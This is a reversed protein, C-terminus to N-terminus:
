LKKDLSHLEKANTQDKTAQAEMAAVCEANTTDNSCTALEAKRETDHQLYYAQDHKPSTCGAVIPLAAALAARVLLVKM